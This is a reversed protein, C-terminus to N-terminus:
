EKYNKRPLNRLPRKNQWRQITKEIDSDVATETRDVSNNNDKVIIRNNGTETIEHNEIEKIEVNKIRDFNEQYDSISLLGNELKYLGESISKKDKQDLKLKRVLRVNRKLTNGTLPCKLILRNPRIQHVLYPGWWDLRGLKRGETLECNGLCVVVDNRKIPDINESAIFKNLTNQFNSISIEAIQDRLIKVDNLWTNLESGQTHALSQQKTDNEPILLPPARAFYCEFPSLGNLSKMPTRNLKAVVLALLSEFNDVTVKALQLGSKIRHNSKESIGNASPQYASTTFRIFPLIEAVHSVVGQFEKGGDSNITSNELGNTVIIKVLKQAITVSAKNPIIEAFTFWSFRCVIVLVFNSPVKWNETSFLDMEFNTFPGMPPIKFQIERVPSRPFKNLQCVFCKSVVRNLVEHIKPIFLELKRIEMICKNFGAHLFYRHIQRIVFNHDREAVVVLNTKNESEGCLLTGNLSKFFKNRFKVPSKTGLLKVIKLCFEDKRQNDVLDSIKVSVLLLPSEIIRTKVTNVDKQNIRESLNKFVSLSDTKSERSLYDSLGLLESKNSIYEIEIAENFEIYLTFLNKIRTPILPDILNNSKNFFSAAPKNDTYIKVKEVGMLIWRFVKLTLLIGYIELNRSCAHHLKEPLKKSGLACIVRKIEGKEVIENGLSFGVAVKSADSCVFVTKQPDFHATEIARTMAKQAETFASQHELEWKFKEEGSNVRGVLAHLPSLTANLYPVRSAVFCCHGLFKQVQKLNSPIEFNIVKNIQADREKVGQRNLHKGLFIINSELFHCKNLALVICQKKFEAFLAELIVLTETVSAIILIDDLYTIINKFKDTVPKIIKALAYNFESPSNKIGFPLVKFCYQSAGYSFATVLHDDKHLAIMHFASCIDLATFFLKQNPKNKYHEIIIKGTKDLLDQAAVLPYRRESIEKNLKTYNQVLRVKPKDSGPRVSIVPFLPANCGSSCETIIGGVILKQLEHEVAEEHKPSFKLPKSYLSEFDPEDNIFDFKEIFETFGRDENNQKFIIKYKNLLDLLKNIESGKYGTKLKEPDIKFNQARKQRENIFNNRERELEARYDQDKIESIKQIFNISHAPIKEIIVFSGLFTGTNIQFVQDTGNQIICFPDLSNTVCEDFIIHKLRIEPPQILLDMKRSPSNLGPISLKVVSSSHPTLVYNNRSYVFNNLESNKNFINYNHSQLLSVLDNGLINQNQETLFLRINEVNLSKIKLNVEIYQSIVEVIDGGFASISFQNNNLNKVTCNKPCNSKNLLSIEAGTDILFKVTITEFTNDLGLKAKIFPKSIIKNPDYKINIM